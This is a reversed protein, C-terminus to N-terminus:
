AVVPPEPSFQQSLAWKLMNGHTIVIYSGDESDSVSADPDNLHTRIFETVDGILASSKFCPTVSLMNSNSTSENKEAVQFVYHFNGNSGISTRYNKRFKQSIKIDDDPTFEYAGFCKKKYQETLSVKVDIRDNIMIKNIIRSLAGPMVAIRSMDQVFNNFEGSKYVLDLHIFMMKTETLTFQLSEIRDIPLIDNESDELYPCIVRIINTGYEGQILLVSKSSYKDNKVDSYEFLVYISDDKSFLSFGPDVDAGLVVPIENTWFEELSKSGKKVGHILNIFELRYNYKKKVGNIYNNKFLQNSAGYYNDHIKKLIYKAINIKQDISIKKQLYSEPNELLKAIHNKILAARDKEADFNVECVWVADDDAIGFSNGASVVNGM